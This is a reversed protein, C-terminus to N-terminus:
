TRRRGLQEAAIRTSDSGRPTWERWSAFYRAQKFWLQFGKAQPYLIAPLQVRQDRSGRAIMTGNGLSDGRRGLLDFRTPDNVRQRARCIIDEAGLSARM